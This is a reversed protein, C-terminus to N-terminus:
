PAEIEYVPEIELQELMDAADMRATFRMQDLLVPGDVRGQYFLVRQGPAVRGSIFRGGTQWALELSGPGTMGIATLPLVLYVRVSRPPSYYEKPITLRLEFPAIRAIIRSGTTIGRHYPTEWEAQAYLRGASSTAELKQASQARACPLAWLPLAGILLLAGFSIRAKM